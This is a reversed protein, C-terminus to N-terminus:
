WIALVAAPLWVEFARTSRGKLVRYAPGLETLFDRKIQLSAAYASACGVVIQPEIVDIEARGFWAWVLPIHLTANVISACM